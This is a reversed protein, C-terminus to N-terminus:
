RARRRRWSGRGRRLASWRGRPDRGCERGRTALALEGQSARLDDRRDRNRHWGARVRTVFDPVALPHVPRQGGGRHGHALSSRPHDRPWTAGVGQILAAAPSAKAPPSLSDAAAAAAPIGGDPIGGCERAVGVLDLQRPDRTFRAAREGGHLALLHGPVGSERRRAPTGRRQRGRRGERETVPKAGLGHVHIHLVVRADGASHRPSPSNRTCGCWSSGRVRRARPRGPGPAGLAGPPAAEFAGVSRARGDSSPRPTRPAPGKAQTGDDRALRRCARKGVTLSVGTRPPPPPMNTARRKGTRQRRARRRRGAPVVANSAFM